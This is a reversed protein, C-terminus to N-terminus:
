FDIIATREKERVNEYHYGDVYLNPVLKRKTTVHHESPRSSILKQFLINATEKIRMDTCFYSFLDDHMWLKDDESSYVDLSYKGNKIETKSFYFPFFPNDNVSFSYIYENYAFTIYTTHTVQIPDNNISELKALEQKNGKLRTERLINGPNNALYKMNTEISDRLERKIRDLTRNSIIANKLPKVTGNCSKVINALETLIRAANYEWTRLYLRENNHTIYM